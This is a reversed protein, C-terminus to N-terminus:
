HRSSMPRMSRNVANVRANRSLLLQVISLRGYWAAWHLLTFGHEDSQHIDNTPNDLWLRIAFTNNQRILSYIDENENLIVMTIKEKEFIKFIFSFLSVSWDQNFHFVINIKGICYLKVTKRNSWRAFSAYSSLLITQSWAYWTCWRRQLWFQTIWHLSGM